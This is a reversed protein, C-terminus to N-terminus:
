SDDQVFETIRWRADHRRLVLRFRLAEPSGECVVHEADAVCHETTADMADIFMPDARWIALAGDRGTGGGNGWVVDDALLAGLADYDRTAIAMRIDGLVTAADTPLQAFRTRDPSPRNEDVPPPEPPVEVAVQKLQRYIARQVQEIRGDLWGPRAEGRMENPLAAGAEWEAAHGVVKVRWPRKGVVTVDFRVFMRKPAAGGGGGGGGGRGGGGGGSAGGGGAVGGGAGGAGGGGAGGGGAGGAPTGRGSSMEEGSAALEVQHWATTIRGTRANEDMTPYLSRVAAIAAAYVAAFTDDYHARKAAATEAKYRDCGQAAIGCAAIVAVAVLRKSAGM